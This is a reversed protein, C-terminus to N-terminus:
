FVYRITFIFDFKSETIKDFGNDLSGEVPFLDPYYYDFISYSIGLYLGNHSNEFDNIFQGDIRIQNNLIVM